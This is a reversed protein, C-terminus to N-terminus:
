LKKVQKTEHDFFGQCIAMLTEKTLNIRTYAVGRKNKSWSTVHDTGIYNAFELQFGDGDPSEVVSVRKNETRYEFGNLVQTISPIKNSM